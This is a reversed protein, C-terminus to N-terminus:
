KVYTSVGVIGNLNGDEDYFPSDIFLATSETGDKRKVKFEGSWKKGKKLKEMVESAKQKTAISPLIDVIDEGIVENEKWGYLDEAKENWYVIINDLDTAIVANEVQNLIRSQLRLKNM